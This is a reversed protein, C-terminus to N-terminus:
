GAALRPTELGTLWLFKGYSQAMALRHRGSALKPDIYLDPPPASAVMLLNKYEQYRNRLARLGAGRNGRSWPALAPEKPVLRSM